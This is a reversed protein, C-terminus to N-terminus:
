LGSLISGPLAVQCKALVGFTTEPMSSSESSATCAKKSRSTSRVTGTDPVRSASSVLSNSFVKRWTFMASTLSNATNASAIPMSTQSAM